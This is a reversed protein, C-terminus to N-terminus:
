DLTTAKLLFDLSLRASSVRRERLVEESSRIVTVEAMQTDVGFWREWLGGAIENAKVGKVETVQGACPRGRKVQGPDNQISLHCHVTM